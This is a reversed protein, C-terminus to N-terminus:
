RLRQQATNYVVYEDDHFDSAAEKSSKVGHTSQYGDPPKILDQNYNHYDKCKGLAVENVLAFRTGRGDSVKSYKM